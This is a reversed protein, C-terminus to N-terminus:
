QANAFRSLSKEVQKIVKAYVDKMVITYLDLLNVLSTWTVLTRLMETDQIKLQFGFRNNKNALRDFMVLAKPSETLSKLDKGGLTEEFVNEVVKALEKNLNIEHGVNSKLNSLKTLAM